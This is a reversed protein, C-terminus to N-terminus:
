EANGNAPLGGRAAVAAPAVGDLGNGPRGDIGAPQLDRMQGRLAAIEAELHQLRLDFAAVANIAGEIAGIVREPKAGAKLLLSLLLSAATREMAGADQSLKELMPFIM